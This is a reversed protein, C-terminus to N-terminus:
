SYLRAKPTTTWHTLYEQRPLPTWRLHQSMWFLSLLKKLFARAIAIRQKEGGSLSSGAESIKTEYGDPLSVIFDHIQAAKAANQIENFSAEPNGFAINEGITMPFLFPDQLVLSINERLSHLKIDAINIADFFIEGKWPDYFRCLL